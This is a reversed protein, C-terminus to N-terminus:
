VERFLEVYYYFGNVEVQLTGRVPKRRTKPDRIFLKYPYDKNDCMRRYSTFAKMADRKRTTKQTKYEAPIMPLNTKVVYM